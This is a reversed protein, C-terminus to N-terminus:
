GICNLKEYVRAMYIFFRLPMNENISSQHEVLIVLRGNIVFSLDNRWRNYLVGFLTSIEVSTDPPLNNGSLANYLSILKDKEKFLMRFVNDKYKRNAAM